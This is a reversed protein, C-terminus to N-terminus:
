EQGEPVKISPSLVKKMKEKLTLPKQVEKSSEQSHLPALPAESILNPDELSPFLPNKLPASEAGEEFITSAKKENQSNIIDQYKHISDSILSEPPTLLHSFLAKQLPQEGSLPTLSEKEVRKRDKSNRKNQGKKPHKEKSISKPPESLEVSETPEQVEGEQVKQDEKEKQHEKSPKQKKKDKAKELSQKNTSESGSGIKISSETAAKLALRVQRVQEIEFDQAPVFFTHSPEGSRYFYTTGFCVVEVADVLYTAGAENKTNKIKLKYEEKASIITELIPERTFHM